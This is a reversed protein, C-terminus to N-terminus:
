PLAQPPAAGGEGPIYCHDNYAELMAENQSLKQLASHELQRVRETSLSLQRAIETRTMPAGHLLGWRQIVVRQETATLPGQAIEGLIRRKLSAQEAADEPNAYPGGSM